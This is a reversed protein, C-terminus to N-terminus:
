ESDSLAPEPEAKQRIKDRAEELGEAEIRLCAADKMDKSAQASAKAEVGEALDVWARGGKQLKGFLIEDALCDKVATQILRALPRAGFVPDYGRAALWKMAGDSFEVQIKRTKMQDNLERIYKGVIQEMTEPSLSRFSVVGDLRNRFEPSFLREIAKQSKDSKDEGAQGGFGISSASMERTGANSTM